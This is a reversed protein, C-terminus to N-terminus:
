TDFTFRVSDHDNDTGGGGIASADGPRTAFLCGLVQYHYTGSISVPNFYIYGSIRSITKVATNSTYDKVIKLKHHGSGKRSIEPANAIIALSNNDFERSSTTDFTITCDADSAEITAKIVFVIIKNEQADPVTIPIAGSSGKRANGSIHYFTYGTSTPTNPATPTSNGSFATKQFYTATTFGWPKNIAYSATVGVTLDSADEAAYPVSMVGELSSITQIFGYYNDTRPTASSVAEAPSYAEFILDLRPTLFGGLTLNSQIKINGDFDIVTKLDNNNDLIYLISPIKDPTTDNSNDSFKGEVTLSTDSSIANVVRTEGSVTIQDGIKLETTFKTDVGTVTTSNTPDISGTLQSSGQGTIKIGGSVEVTDSNVALVEEATAGGTRTKFVMKSAESGSSINSSIFSIEAFDEPDGGSSDACQLVIRGMKDNATPDSSDKKFFIAGANDGTGTNIFELYPARQSSGSHKLHLSEM